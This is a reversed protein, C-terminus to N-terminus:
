CQVQGSGDLVHHLSTEKTILVGADGLHETSLCATYHYPVKISLRMEGSKRDQFNVAFERQQDPVVAQEAQLDCSGCEHQAHCDSIFASCSAWALACSLLQLCFSVSQLKLISCEQLPCFLPM